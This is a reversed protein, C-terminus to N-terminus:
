LIASVQNIGNGIASATSAISTISNQVGIYWESIKSSLSSPLSAPNLHSADSTLFVVEGVVCNMKQPNFTNRYSVPLVNQIAPYFPHLLTGLNNNLVSTSFLCQIFNLHATLYQTGCFLVRFTITQSGFGLDVLQDFNALPIKNLAYKRTISETLGTSSVETNFLGLNSDSGPGSVANNILNYTNIEGAIYQGIPVGFNEIVHFSVKKGGANIYSANEMQWGFLGALYAAENLTNLAALAM